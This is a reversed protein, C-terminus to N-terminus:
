KKLITELMEIIKDIVHDKNLKRSEKHVEM